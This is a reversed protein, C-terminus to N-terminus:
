HTVPRIRRLGEQVLGDIWALTEYLAANQSHRLNKETACGNAFETMLRFLHAFVEEDSVESCLAAVSLRQVGTPREEALPDKNKHEATDM